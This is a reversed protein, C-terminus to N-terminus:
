KKRKARKRPPARPAEEYSMHKVMHQAADRATRSTKNCGHFPCVASVYPSPMYHVFNSAVRMQKRRGEPIDFILSQELVNLAVQVCLLSMKTAQTIKILVKLYFNDRDLASGDDFKRPIKPVFTGDKEAQSQVLNGCLERAADMTRQDLNRTQGPITM